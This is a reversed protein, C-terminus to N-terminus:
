NVLVVYNYSIMKLFIVCPGQHYIGGKSFYKSFLSNIVCDFTYRDEVRIELDTVGGRNYKILGRSFNM